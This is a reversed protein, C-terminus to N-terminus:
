SVTLYEFFFHHLHLIVATPILKSQPFSSILILNTHPATHGTQNEAYQVGEFCKNACAQQINTAAESGIM